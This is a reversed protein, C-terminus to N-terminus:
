KQKRKNVIEFISKAIEEINNNIVILSLRDTLSASFNLMEERNINYWIPILVKEGKVIEQTIIGNLEYNPYAKKIYSPSFVIVANSSKALGKDISERISDGYNISFEDYWVNLGLMRLTTCLPRVFSDKDESAHSVFLDYYDNRIPFSSKKMTLHVGINYLYDESNHYYEFDNFVDSTIEVIASTFWKPYPHEVMDIISDINLYLKKEFSVIDLQHKLQQLLYESSIIRTSNFDYDQYICISVVLSDPEIIWSKYVGDQNLIGNKWDIKLPFEKKKQNHGSEHTLLKEYYWYIDNNFIV